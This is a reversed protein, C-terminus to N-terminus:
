RGIEFISEAINMGSRHMEAAKLMDALVEPRQDAVDFKEGPDEGLHFLLPRKHVVRAPPQGYAGQTIFHVKYPGKRFAYLEGSRYYAFSTRPSQHGMLAPTLDVSDIVEAVPEVGALKLATAYMDMVSGIGKVVGPQIQGPWWFIGPVRTGGEFTTAKGNRLPGASGAHQDMTLWPGNDSSFVVLTDKAIGQEELAKRIQGVSWDIEEVVDGYRGGASVGEFDSSAFVPVHPMNYAVYLFFPQKRNAHKEIYDVSQETYRKTLLSQNPPREVIEDEYGTSVVSSKILPIDWYENKPALSYKKRDAIAKQVFAKDGRAGAAFIETTTPGIMWDLDNSYPTGLWEDFGHRTPLGEPQDGLHWKGLMATTYGASKLAEPLTVIEDPIRGAEGPFLVAKTEGYLGSREPYNGTMLSGRSPSCVPAAVYFNTWRQGQRAIEDLEPTQINPSGYSSLDGYGMDDAFLIIINPQKGIISKSSDNKDADAAVQCGSILTASTALLVALRSRFKFRKAVRVAIKNNM